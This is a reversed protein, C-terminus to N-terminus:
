FPMADDDVPPDPPMSGAATASAASSAPTTSGNLRRVEKPHELFYKLDAQIRTAPAGSDQEKVTCGTEPYFARRILVDTAIKKEGTRSEYERPEVQLLLGVRKKEMETMRFSYTIQGNPQRVEVKRVTVSEVGAVALITHFIAMAFSEDGDSKILCLTLSAAAGDDTQFYLRAM